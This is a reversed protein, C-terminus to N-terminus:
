LKWFTWTHNKFILQVFTKLACFIISIGFGNVLFRLLIACHLSDVFVTYFLAYNEAQFKKIADTNWGVGCENLRVPSIVKQMKARIRIQSRGQM